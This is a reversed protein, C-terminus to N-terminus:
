PLSAEFTYGFAHHLAPAEPPNQSIASAMKMSCTLLGAMQLMGIGGTYQQWQYAALYLTTSHHDVALFQTHQLQGDAKLTHCFM